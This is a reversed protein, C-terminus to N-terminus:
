CLHSEAFRFRAGDLFEKVMECGVWHRGVDEAERCAKFSGAFPDAVVGDKNTLFEIFFRSIDDPLIAPHRPLGAEKCLKSYSSSGSEPTAILLDHPISGGRDFYFSESDVQGSPKFTKAPKRAAASKIMKKFKESYQSLVRKNCANINKPDPSLVLFPETSNVVHKRKNCVWHGTVMKNPSWWTFRQVLHLGLKDELAILLRETHLSQHGSDPVYSPGINLVISGGPALMRMWNEAMVVLNNVYDEQNTGINGYCRDKTLLYPPSTIILDIEGDFLEPLVSSDGFFALGSRTVFYARATNKPAKTLKQRGKPTVVWEGLGEGRCILGKRKLTQQIFRIKRKWKSVFGGKDGAYVLEEMQEESLGVEKAFFGYTGATTGVKSTARLVANEFMDQQIM